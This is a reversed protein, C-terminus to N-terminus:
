LCVVRGDPLITSGSTCGAGDIESMDGQVLANSIHDFETGINQQLIRISSICVIAILSCLLAYEVMGSGSQSKKM